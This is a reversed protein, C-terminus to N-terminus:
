RDFISTPGRGAFTAQMQAYTEFTFLSTQFIPPVVAGAAFRSDHALITAPETWDPDDRM